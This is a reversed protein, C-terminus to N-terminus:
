RLIPAADAVVRMPDKTTGPQLHRKVPVIERDHGLRSLILQRHIRRILLM